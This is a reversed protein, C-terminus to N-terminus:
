SIGAFRRYRKLERTTLAQHREDMPVQPHVSIVSGKARWSGVLKGDAILYNAFTDLGELSTAIHRRERYAVVYEDYIPLLRVSGSPRPARGEDDISWMSLGDIRTERLGALAVAERAEAARLSSWWTFDQMTAPGHARFYRRTLEALAEDKAM